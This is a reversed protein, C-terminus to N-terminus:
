HLSTIKELPCCEHKWRNADWRCTELSEGEPLTSRKLRRAPYM